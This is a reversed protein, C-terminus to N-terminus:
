FCRSCHFEVERAKTPDVQGMRIRPSRPLASKSARCLTPPRRGKVSTWPRNSCAIRFPCTRTVTPRKTGELRQQANHVHQGPIGYMAECIPGAIAALTDADGGLSCCWRMAEDFSGARAAIVLALPVTGKCSLDYVHLAREAEPDLRTLGTYGFRDEVASLLGRGGRELAHHTAWATAQAGRIAEPHDHTISASLAALALLESEDKAFMAIPSVRM